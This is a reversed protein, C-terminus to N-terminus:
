TDALIIYFQFDVYSVRSYVVNLSMNGKQILKEYDDEEGLEVTLAYWM